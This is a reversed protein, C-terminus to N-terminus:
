SLIWSLGKSVSERRFCGVSSNPSANVVQINNANLQTLSTSFLLPLHELSTLCPGEGSVRPEKNADLGLILIKKPRWHYALGLAGYLSNGTHIKKPDEALGTKCRLRRLWYEPGSGEIRNLYMPSCQSSIREYTKIYSPMTVRKAYDKAFHIDIYNPCDRMRILNSKSPDLTFFDTICSKNLYDLAGNVAIVKNSDCQIFPYLIDKITSKDITKLSPGTGVIVVKDCDPRQM